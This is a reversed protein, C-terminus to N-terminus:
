VGQSQRQCEAELKGLMEETGAGDDTIARVTELLSRIYGEPYVGSTYGFVVRLHKTWESPDARARAVAVGAALYEAVPDLRFRVTSGIATVRSILLGSNIMKQVLDAAYLHPVAREVLLIAEDHLTDMPILTRGLCAVAIQGAINAFMDPGMPSDKSRHLSRVFTQVIQPISMPLHSSVEVQESVTGEILLVVFLAPVDYQGFRAEMIELVQNTVAVEFRATVPKAMYESSYQSVFYNANVSNVGDPKIIALHISPDEFVEDFAYRGTIITFSASSTIIARVTTSQVKRELESLGDILVIIRHTRLAKRVVGISRDGWDEDDLLTRVRSSVVADLDDFHDRILIALSPVDGFLREDEKEAMSWLCIETGLTTKGYGGDGIIEIVVRQDRVLARIDRSSPRTFNTHKNQGRVQVPMPVYFRVGLVEREHKLRERCSDVRRKVWANLFDDCEIFADLVRDPLDKIKVESSTYRDVWKKRVTMSSAFRNLVRVLLLEMIITSLADPLFAGIFKGVDEQASALQILRLPAILHLAAMTLLIALFLGVLLAVSLIAHQYENLWTIYRFEPLVSTSTVGSKMTTQTRLGLVNGKSSAAVGQDVMAVVPNWSFLALHGDASISFQEIKGPLWSASHDINALLEVKQVGHLDAAGQDDMLVCSMVGTIAQSCSLKIKLGSRIEKIYNLSDDTIFVGTGDLALSMAKFASSGIVDRQVWTIGGDSTTAYYEGTGTNDVFTGYVYGNWRDLLGTRLIKVNRDPLSIRKWNLGGNDTRFLLGGDGGALAYQKDHIYFSNIAHSETPMINTSVADKIDTSYVSWTSGFDQSTILTGDEVFTLLKDDIFNFVGINNINNNSVEWTAGLENKYFLKRNELPATGEDIIVLVKSSNTIYCSTATGATLDPFPPETKWTSGADSSIFSQNDGSIYIATGDSNGYLCSVHGSLDHKSMNWTEGRDTSYLLIGKDTALIARGENMASIASPRGPFEFVTQRQPKDRQLIAVEGDTLQALFRGGPWGAASSLTGATTDTVIWPGNFFDATTYIIGNEDLAEGSRDSYFRTAKISTNAIPPLLTTNTGTIQFVKGKATAVILSDGFPSSSHLPESQAVNMTAILKWSSGSDDTRYVSNGQIAWSSHADIVRLKSPVFGLPMNRWSLGGDTTVRLIVSGNSVTTSASGTVIYAVGPVDRPFEANRFVVNDDLKFQAWHQGDDFSVFYYKSTFAVVEGANGAYVYDIRADTFRSLTKWNAGADKTQMIFGFDGAIYGTTAGSTYLSNVSNMYVTDSWIPLRGAIEDAEASVLFLLLGFLWATIGLASQMQM